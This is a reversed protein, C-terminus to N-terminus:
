FFLIVSGAITLLVNAFAYAGTYGLSPMHSNAAKTVVSLSAGSTMSGTIGGLLLVPHIKLVKRGFFYGVLIPTITVAIGCIVLLPGAALFTEIIDGGARLGVGAMFLLLGFEMLIWRAADPLRGFTPHISRLYGIALGSALLGGASGLGISLQGVSIAFLGIVVGFAIGFAFTVMDTEAIDREVHGLELGLLDVNDHPGVVTLIDGKRLKIETTHPVELRMRMVRTLLVGFKRAIDLEQLTKGIANKNIVVIQASETFSATSSDPTVEEGIKAKSLIKTYYEVPALIHVEDDLQLFGEPDSELIEGNRLVRVVSTKDWYLEALRKGPIKTIEENTVRYVRAAVIAPQSAAGSGDEAELKKSENALDLRLIQPLLKIIAILGALGFIYTIAYGTAVNGIMEDATIGEPPKVQGSRIAEQAAALTPSSTLGGSLLGASTGPALALLKTAVVAVSFGTAAIVVALLFYKLGDTRLVDFFRPGAQYGVSFIFLAFGVSQVGASIRFGFHGLFLGAFLVGAVPGLSFSGIRIAGILYGMGLILFLTLVPQVRLLDIFRYFITLDGM